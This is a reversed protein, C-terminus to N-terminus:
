CATAHRHKFRKHVFGHAGMFALLESLLRRGSSGQQIRSRVRVPRVPLQQEASETHAPSQVCSWRPSACQQDMKRPERKPPASSSNPTSRAGSGSACGRQNCETFTGSSGMASDNQSPERSGNVVASRAWRSPHSLAGFRIRSMTSAIRSSMSGCRTVVSCRRKALNEISQCVASALPQTCPSISSRM